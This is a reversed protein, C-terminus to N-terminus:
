KCRLRQCLSDRVAVPVTADREEPLADLVQRLQLRATAANSVAAQAQKQVVQLRQQAAQLQGLAADRETELADIRGYGYWCFVALLAALLWGYIANPTM